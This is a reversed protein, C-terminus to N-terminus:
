SRKCYFTKIEFPRFYLEVVGNKLLHTHHREELLNTESISQFGDGFQLHAYTGTKGAEYLRFVYGKGDESQKVSEVIVNPASVTLLSDVPQAAGSVLYALAGSNLEYAPRVVSEVSFGSAHPLLSYTFLHCGQDGRADPHTGSKLLSLRLEGNKATVGYKCDNLLAVGFGNESLDTWKHACVEFQARDDAQNDHTTREVHGYQIEHRAFDSLIDFEFGAKLLQHKDNWDVHTQFDVRPSTSHFVLDQMISSQGGIKYTSRIRMQVPGDCVIKRSELRLDPRMKLSVDRDIDWNDWVAPIDEGILFTNLAGGKRVIERLSTKEIFSVIRGYRDFRVFAFPTEIASRGAKFPSAPRAPSKKKKLRLVKAGLPPLSLGAIALTREGRVDEIRQCALSEDEPAWGEEADDLTVEDTREWSLSNAVLWTREDRANKAKDKAGNRAALFEMAYYRWCTASIYVHYLADAAEDNVAAISSGPLIDHFQRTLLTKWLERLPAAPYKAGARLSAMACLLEADRLALECYRNLQKSGAVSTLTGRHLELYLEGQWVPLREAHESFGEMFDSLSIHQARPCGELDEVRRAIEIMEFQPGGGGDGYGYACYHRDQVDKHQVNNWQATLTKPDPWCHVSNLHTIVPSGDIGRWVFTDFPFRTTDNWAMKATCFFEIGAGRLIQPLAASYGFVDPLWLTDSTYGFMERTATQGYLLQRTLSEGSPINCDPEIWMGGNPEWRKARVMERIKEFLTPYLRRVVDAHYPTTQLFRFEPYQEMLNIANAFTRACK